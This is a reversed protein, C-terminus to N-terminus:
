IKPEFGQSKVYSRGKKLVRQHEPIFRTVREVGVGPTIHIPEPENTALEEMRDLISVSLPSDPSNAIDRAFIRLADLDEAKELDYNKGLVSNAALVLLALNQKEERDM